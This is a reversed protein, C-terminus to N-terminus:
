DAGEVSQQGDREGAGPGRRGVPPIAIFRGRGAQGVFEGDRVIQEGRSFVDRPWGTLQLGEYPSWDVKEHLGQASVEVPCRPDFVVLDADYGPAVHGKRPLNFLRAPATCCIEVWRPLSLLGRRAADHALGLRAEISPLGGPVSDFGPEAAKEAASFPCHDTSLIQL